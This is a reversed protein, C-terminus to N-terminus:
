RVITEERGAGVSIITAPAQALEEVRRVYNQAAPPLDEFRRAGRIDVGWGPLDEYIPRCESLVDTDTPFEELRQGHYDYAVCIRLEDFQSLIDLKTIAIETLGNVEAAYRLAVGDLWGCRRPRGTTTGYEDWPHEGTGRLKDGVPGTLETPMPGAGVRTQFAKVIGIIRDVHKPGFGLGTFAGGVTPSSSTVYPYTGHNLDLLTGQAGECLLRKGERLAARVISSGDQVYPALRAAYDAYEEAIADADLPPLGYVLELIKNKEAVAARLRAAFAGPDRLSWARLGSRAAKDAYTPGIGRRTTGLRQKGRSQEAAGDLATHYPLILQTQGSLILRQPSVDVGRAALEDMERLLTKPNVVVGGGIVCTVGPHIIGSPVLHLKFIEGGVTVTHGANDGGNFRAVMDVERALLDTVKGKGEDGWQTGIIITAPM